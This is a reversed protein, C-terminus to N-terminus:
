LVPSIRTVRAPDARFRPNHADAALMHETNDHADLAAQSAWKEILFFRNEDHEDSLLQYQLCGPEALVLPKLRTYAAIQEARKGPMVEIQILLNVEEM